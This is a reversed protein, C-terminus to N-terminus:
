RALILEIVNTVHFTVDTRYWPQDEYYRFPGNEWEVQYYYHDLIYQELDLQDILPFMEFQRLNVIEDNAFTKEITLIGHLYCARETISSNKSQRLLHVYKDLLVNSIEVWKFRQYLACLAQSVWNAGFVDLNWKTSLNVFNRASQLDIIDAVAMMAQPNEFSRDSSFIGNKNYSLIKAKIQKLLASGLNLSEALKALAVWEHLSYKANLNLHKKGLRMGAIRNFDSLDYFIRVYSDADYEIGQNSIFYPLSGDPMAGVSSRTRDYRIFAKYYKVVKDIIIQGMERIIYPSYEFGKSNIVVTPVKYIDYTNSSIRAKKKLSVILDNPMWEAEEKWVSPLYFAGKNTKPDEIYITYNEDRKINSSKIWQDRPALASVELYKYTPSIKTRSDTLCVSASRLANDYISKSRDHIGNSMCCWVSESTYPKNYYTTVFTGGKLDHWIPDSLMEGVQAEIEM